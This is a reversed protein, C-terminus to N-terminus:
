GANEILLINELFEIIDEPTQHGKVQDGWGPFEILGEDSNEFFGAIEADTAKDIFYTVGLTNPHMLLIFEDLNRNSCYHAPGFQVSLVFGDAFRLHMGTLIGFDGCPIFEVAPWRAKIAKRFGAGFDM